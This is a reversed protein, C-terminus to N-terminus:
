AAVAFFDRAVHIAAGCGDRPTVVLDYGDDAVVTYEHRLWRPRGGMTGNCVVLLLTQGPKHRRPSM